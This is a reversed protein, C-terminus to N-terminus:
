EKPKWAGVIRVVAGMLWWSLMASLAAAAVQYQTTDAWKLLDRAPDSFVVGAILSFVARTVFESRNKPPQFVLAMVAGLFASALKVGLGGTPDDM